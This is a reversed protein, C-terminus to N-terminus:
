PALAGGARERDKISWSHRSGTLVACLLHPPSYFTHLFLPVYVGGHSVLLAPISHPSSPPHLTTVARKERFILLRLMFSCNMRRVEHWTPDGGVQVLM